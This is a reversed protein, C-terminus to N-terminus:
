KERQAKAPIITAGKKESRLESRKIPKDELLKRLLREFDAKNVKM